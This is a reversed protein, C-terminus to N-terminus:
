ALPQRWAALGVSGGAALISNARDSSALFTETGLSVVLRDGLYAVDALIQDWHRYQVDHGEGDYVREQVVNPLASCWRELHALPVLTDASGWYLFAPAAVARLEPLPATRYLTFAQALGDPAVDRGRAFVGRTAEEVVCDDFGPIRHVASEPPFAWWTVPDAAVDAAEWQPGTEGLLESYACALHLSRVRGPQDAALRAAYPGGGSIAVISVQDIGLTDLLSWVDASYEQFGAEPNFPTQGLGNREVSIVRVQLQERFARAFELLRFARVTTGAGGLFLLPQWGPQGEDIFNVTGGSAVATSRVSPGLPSFETQGVHELEGSEGAAEQVQEM